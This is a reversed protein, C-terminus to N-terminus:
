KQSESRQWPNIDTNWIELKIKFTGDNQKQWITLYKGIDTVPNSMGPLTLTVGYAGIEWVLDGCSWVELTWHYLTDVKAGAKRAEVERQKIAQKGKIMKDYIPMQIADDTYYSYLLDLNGALYAQVTENGIQQIKNKLQQSDDQSYCFTTSLLFLISVSLIKPLTKMIIKGKKYISCLKAFSTRGSVSSNIIDFPIYTYPIPYLNYPIPFHKINDIGM